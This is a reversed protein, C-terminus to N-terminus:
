AKSNKRKANPLTEKPIEHHDISELTGIKEPKRFHAIEEKTLANPYDLGILERIIVSRPVFPMREKVKAELNQFRMGEAGTLRLSITVTDPPDEKRVRTAM